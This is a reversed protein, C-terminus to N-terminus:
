CSTARSRSRTRSHRATECRRRGRSAAPMSSPSSPPGWTPMNLVAAVRDNADVALQASGHEVGPEGFTHIWEVNGDSDLKAAFGAGDRTLDITTGAVTTSQDVGGALVIGGDSTAAVRGGIPMVRGWLFAGDPSFAVLAYPGVLTEGDPARFTGNLLELSM